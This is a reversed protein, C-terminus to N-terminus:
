NKVFKLISHTDQTSIKLLYLGSSLFQTDLIIRSSNMKFSSILQGKLDLIECDASIKGQGLEIILTHEVPNPFLKTEGITETTKGLTVQLSSSSITTSYLVGDISYAYVKFWIEDSSTLGPGDWIYSTDTLKQAIPLFTSKNDVSYELDYYIPRGQDKNNLEWTIPKTVDYVDGEQSQITVNPREYSHLLETFGIGTVAKGNVTGSISTAGEFFRFPLQVETNDQRVTIVLDLNNTASTLRWQKAYCMENDDMCNFQLREIEFDKSTYQTTEDVYASLIRYKENDPIARDATFINWLNIDMENSLQISFWEYKENTSPNFDGYQRDIWGTGVISETTGNLTLTGLVLNKTQSYYYTYNSLGQELYGDDGLILPRKVTEYEFNIAGFSASSSMIYEFPIIANSGDLKNTWTENGGSFISAEINLRDTSLTTYNLPKVDQHFEGTSHNTINLIRFGDFILQPNYFYTIMVSYETGTSQGVVNATAYWWEIPESGHRGEDSSFAVQGEPTYPYTKWDQSFGVTM